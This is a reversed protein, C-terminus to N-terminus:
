IRIWMPEDEETFDSFKLGVIFRLDHDYKMEVKWCKSHWTKGVQWFEIFVCCTHSEMDVTGLPINGFSFWRAFSKIFDSSDSCNRQVRNYPMESDVWVAFADELEKPTIVNYPFDRVWCLNYDAIKLLAVHVIVPLVTEHGTMDPLPVSFTVKDLTDDEVPLTIIVGNCGMLILVSVILLYKM